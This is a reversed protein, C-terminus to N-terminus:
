PAMPPGIIVPTVTSIPGAESHGVLYSLNIEYWEAGNYPDDDLELIFTYKNDGNPQQIVSFNGRAQVVDMWVRQNTKALAPIGRYVSSSCNCFDNSTDPIDPWSPYWVVKNLYTPQIGDGLEWRGPADFDLHHWYFANDTIILQSKGDIYARVKLVTWPQTPPNCASVIIGILLITFINKRM